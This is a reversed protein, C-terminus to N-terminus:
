DNLKHLRSTQKIENTYILRKHQLHSARVVHLKDTLQNGITAKNRSYNKHCVGIKILSMHFTDKATLQHLIM